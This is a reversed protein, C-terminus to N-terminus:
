SELGQLLKIAVGNLNKGSSHIALFNKTRAGLCEFNAFKVKKVKDKEYVYVNYGKENLFSKLNNLKYGAKKSLKNSHEFTILPYKALTKVLGKLCYFDHGDTDIKILSVEKIGIIEDGLTMAITESNIIKSKVQLDEKSYHMSGGEGKRFITVNTKKDGLCFNFISINSIKSYKDLLKQYFEKIPEVMIVEHEIKQGNFLADYYMGKNAGIDLFVIKSNYNSILKSIYSIDEGNNTGYIDTSKSIFKLKEFIFNLAIQIENVLKHKIKQISIV